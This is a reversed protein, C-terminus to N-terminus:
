SIGRTNNLLHGILFAYWVFVALIVTLARRTLVRDNQEPQWAWWYAPLLGLGLAILHEKLEFSGVRPFMRLEEMFVRAGLRYSPYIILGASATLLYLVVIANVYGAGNVARFRGFFGGAPRRVPAVVGLTQHTVAGILAVALLMHVLLLYIVANARPHRNDGPM